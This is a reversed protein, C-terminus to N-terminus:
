PLGAAAFFGGLAGAIADVTNPIFVLTACVYHFCLFVSAGHVVPHKEFARRRERPLASKLLRGYVSTVIIAIGHLLGFVLFNSTTGHWAGVVFFTILVSAALLLNHLRAPAASLLRKSLPTFIYHRIWTGFSMHWRTWFDQVSRALYPRNFNEPLSNVGCLRAIAIMLDTYGSFNLYLYVPYSYFVIALDIWGAGPGALAGIDSAELFVPAILFAKILGNVARHGAALADGTEPRGVTGLGQIFAEYRQIPGALLTWFAFLYGVYGVPGLPLHGLYPADVILHVIRFLMYSLGIIAVPHELWELGSIWEYQRLYVFLGVQWCIALMPVYARAFREKGWIARILVYPPLAFLCLALADLPRLWSALMAASAAALALPFIGRARSWALLVMGLSLVAFPISNVAIPAVSPIM